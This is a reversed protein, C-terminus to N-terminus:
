SKTQSLFNLVSMSAAMKHGLEKLPGSESGMREVLLGHGNGNVESRIDDCCRERKSHKGLALQVLELRELEAPWHQLLL